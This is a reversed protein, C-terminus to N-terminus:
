SCDPFFGVIGLSHKQTQQYICHILLKLSLMVYFVVPLCVNSNHTNM